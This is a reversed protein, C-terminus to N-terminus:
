SCDPIPTAFASSPRRPWFSPAFWVGILRRTWGSSLHGMFGELLDAAKQAQELGADQRMM